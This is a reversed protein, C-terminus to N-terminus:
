ALGTKGTLAQMHSPEWNSSCGNESVKDKIDMSDMSNTWLIGAPTNERKVAPYRIRQPGFCRVACGTAAYPEFANKGHFFRRKEAFLRQM